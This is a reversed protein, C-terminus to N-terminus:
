CYRAQHLKERVGKPEDARYRGHSYHACDLGWGRRILERSIDTGDPRFCSAVIRNYSRSGDPHCTITATGIIDRMVAAAKPGNTMSLEEADLGSLRIHQGNIVITDGDIVRASGSVSHSGHTEKAPPAAKVDNWNSHNPPPAMAPIAVPPVMPAVTRPPWMDLVGLALALAAITSTALRANLRAVEIIRCTTSGGKPPSCTTVTVSGSQYSSCDTGAAAWAPWMLAAVAIIMLRNM